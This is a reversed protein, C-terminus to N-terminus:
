DAFRLVKRDYSRLPKRVEHMAQQYVEMLIKYNREQTYKAEYEMRANRGLEFMEDSHAWAWEVKKALDDPDDPVFHLGTRGDHVIEQMAGLRSAIVPTGCAYAEAITMPFNEYCNSPLILFKAGQLVELLEERPSRGDLRVNSLGLRSIELQLDDFLPGDGIIRLAYKPNVRGWAQLLTRLGKEESLRGIFVAYARSESSARPDPFIFNPKVIIKEAPLGAEVFKARSFESLAIYRDVLKKWTGYRHHFSLM